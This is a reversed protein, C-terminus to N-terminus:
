LRGAMAIGTTIAEQSRPSLSRFCRRGTKAFSPRWGSHKRRREFADFPDIRFAAM